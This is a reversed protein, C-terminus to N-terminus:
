TIEESPKLICIQRRKQQHFNFLSFVIQLNWITVLFTFYLYTITPTGRQRMREGGENKQFDTRTTMRTVVSVVLGHKSKTGGM